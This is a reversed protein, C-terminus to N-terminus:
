NYIVTHLNSLVPEPLKPRCGLVCDDFKKVV